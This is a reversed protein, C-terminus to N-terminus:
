CNGIQWCMELGTAGLDGPVTFLLASLSAGVGLGSLIQMTLVVIMGNRHSECRSIVVRGAGWGGVQLVWM